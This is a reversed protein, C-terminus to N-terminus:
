FLQMGVMVRHNDLGGVRNGRTGYDYEVGVTLFRNAKCLLNVLTFSSDEFASTPQRADTEAWAGGYAVSSRCTDNWQHRLGVFGGANERTTVTFADPGTEVFAGASPVVGVLYRGLGEGFTFAGYIRDRRGLQAHAGVNVGWGVAADGSRDQPDVDISRVMGAVAVHRAASGIALNAIADPFGTRTLIPEAALIDSSASDELAAALKVLDSMQRTFRFQAQRTFIAGSITPEGLGDPLTQLDMFTSWTKGALVEGFEGSWTLYGHRWKFLDGSFDFEIYGRMRQEGVAVRADFGLRTLEASLSATGDEDDRGLGGLLAPLFVSERGEAGSDHFMLSKVFGSLGLSVGGPGPVRFSGPFDGATVSDANLDGGPDRPSRDTPTQAPRQSRDPTPQQVPQGQPSQAAIPPNYLVALTMVMAISSTRLWIVNLM